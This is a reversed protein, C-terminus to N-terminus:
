LVRCVAANVDCTIANTISFSLAFLLGM